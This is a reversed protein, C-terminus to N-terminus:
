PNQTIWYANFVAQAMSGFYSFVREIAAQVSAATHDDAKVWIAKRTKREVLTVTCPENEYKSGLVTDVEWHGFEERSEVSEPRSEISDGLIRKNKRVKEKKTNRKLKEPLDINKIGILGNDVYNLSDIFGTM